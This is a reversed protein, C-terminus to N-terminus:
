EMICFYVGTLYAGDVDVMGGSELTSGRSIAQPLPEKGNKQTPM